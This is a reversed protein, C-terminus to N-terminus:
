GFPGLFDRKGIVVGKHRLIDYATTLHFYFNPLGFSLLYAEGSMSPKLGGANITVVRSESGEFSAADVGEIYAITRAVRDLLEPFSTETDAMKPSAVGTLREISLKSTDSARQVQGALAIMDPALRADILESPAIKHEAAHAAGKELITALITLGRTFVPVSAQYMSLPM